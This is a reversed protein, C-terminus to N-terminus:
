RVSAPSSRSPPRRRPPRPPAPSTTTTSSAILHLLRQLREPRARHGPQCRLHTRAHGRPRRSHVMTAVGAVSEGVPPATLRDTVGLRSEGGSALEAELIDLEATGLLGGSLVYDGLLGTKDAGDAQLNVARMAQDLWTSLQGKSL